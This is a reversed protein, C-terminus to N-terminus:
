FGFTLQARFTRGTQPLARQTHEEAGPALWTRDFVNHVTLMFQGRHPLMGSTFTVNALFAPPLPQHDLALREGLRRGEVAVSSGAGYAPLIVAFKSVHRPSNSLRARTEDDTAHDYTHSVRALMLSGWRGELEGALGRSSAESLNAFYLEDGGSEPLSQQSILGSIRSHFVSVSSRFRRGIYQEWIGESTAVNEPELMAVTPQVSYYFQEYANPARFARGHLMKFATVRLPRYILGARPAIEAGFRPLHDLRAGGTLTLQRTLSFEDQAYVGWTGTHSVDDNTLVGLEVSFQRERLSQRWEAGTTFLHRAGLRRTLTLDTTVWQARASDFMVQVGPDGYDYPYDGAYVYHDFSVKAQGNWGRGFAGDYALEAMGQTDHTVFRDDGFVTGYSATPVRKSRRVFGGRVTLAGMTLSGYVREHQEGDLGTAMGFNTEPADFEPFYKHAEGDAGEVSGSVYLDAGNRFRHGVSGRTRWLGLNGAGLSLQLGPAAAAKRTIVNVVAFFAGTGYLSSGPGRIVEVREVSEMDVILDNGIRAQDYIPDNIRHGDVLLLVRTNYDGPRAFGRVGVYSYNGDDVTYFGRVSDLVDELSRHGLRRLEDGTLVTISAPASTVEQAFKSASSVVEVPLQLLEDLSLGALDPSSATRQSSTAEPAQAQLPAVAALLAALVWPLRRGLM